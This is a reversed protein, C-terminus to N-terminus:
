PHSLRADRQLDDGVNKTVVDFRDALVIGLKLGVVKAGRRSRQHACLQACARFPLPVRPALHAIQPGRNAFRCLTRSAALGQYPQPGSNLGRRRCWRDSIVLRQVHSPFHSLLRSRIIYRDASGRACLACRAHFPLRVNPSRERDLARSHRSRYQNNSPHSRLFAAGM